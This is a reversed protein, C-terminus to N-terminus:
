LFLFTPFQNRLKHFLSVVRSGFLHLDSRGSVLIREESSGDKETDIEPLVGVVQVSVIELSIIKRRNHVNDVPLGDLM